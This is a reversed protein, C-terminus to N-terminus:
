KFIACLTVPTTRATMKSSETDSFVPVSGFTTKAQSEPTLFAAYFVGFRLRGVKHLNNHLLLKIAIVSNPKSFDLRVAQRADAKL